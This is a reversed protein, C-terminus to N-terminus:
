RENEETLLQEPNLRLFSLEDPKEDINPM